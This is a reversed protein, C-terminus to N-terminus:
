PRQFHVVCQLLGYQLDALCVKILLWKGDRPLHSGSIRRM